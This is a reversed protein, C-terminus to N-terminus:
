MTTVGCEERTFRKLEQQTEIFEKARTALVDGENVKRLRNRAREEVGVWCL